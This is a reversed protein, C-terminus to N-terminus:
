FCIEFLSSGHVFHGAHKETEAGASLQCIYSMYFYSMKVKYFQFPCNKRIELMYVVQLSNIYNMLDNM